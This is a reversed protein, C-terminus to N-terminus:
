VTQGIESASNGVTRTSNVKEAKSQLYVYIDGLFKEFDKAKGQQVAYEYVGLEKSANIIGSLDWHSLFDKSNLGKDNLAKLAKKGAERGNPIDKLLEEAIGPLTLELISKKFALTQPAVNVKINSDVVEGKDAKADVINIPTVGKVESTPRVGKSEVPQTNPGGMVHGPRNQSQMGQRRLQEERQLRQNHQAILYQQDQLHQHKALNSPNAQNNQANQMMPILLKLSKDFVSEEKGDSNELEAIKEEAMEKALDQLAKYSNVGREAAKEMRDFLDLPSIDDKKSTIKDFMKEFKDNMASIMTNTNKQIEMMMTQTQASQQNMVGLLTTMFQTQGESQTKALIATSNDNKPQMATMMLIMDQIDPGSKPQPANNKEILAQAWSPISGESSENRSLDKRPGAIPRAEQKVYRGSLRSKAKVIFDGGGYDAQLLEWSYKGQRTGIQEGDRFIEFRPHDGMKSLALIAYTFVDLETDDFSVSDSVHEEKQFLGGSGFIGISDDDTDDSVENQDENLRNQAERVRSKIFEETKKKKEKEKALFDAQFKENQKQLRAQAQALAANPSPKRPEAKQAKVEKKEKPTKATKTTVKTAKTAKKRKAM